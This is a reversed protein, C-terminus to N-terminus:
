CRMGLMRTFSSIWRSQWSQDPADFLGKPPPPQLKALLEAISKFSTFSEFYLEWVNAWPGHHDALKEAATPIGDSEPNFGFDKVCRSSFIAWRAGAWKFQMATPDNLWALVDRTPNPALLADLWAANIQQGSFEIGEFAGAIACKLWIAPGTHQATEFAGLTLVGPMRGQLGAAVAEWQREKDTWLIAAPLTQATRIVKASAQISQMLNDIFMM